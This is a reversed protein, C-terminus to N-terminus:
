FPMRLKISVTHNEFDERAELDYRTVLEIGSVPEMVVGLGGRILLPSPDIGKTVFAPGGAVFSSAISAQDNITDYGLGLNATLSTTASWKHSFEGDVSFILEDVTQGDVNLNYGGPGQETYGDLDVATYDVRASPTFTNREDIRIDHEIGAGIHYNTSDYDATAVSYMSPSFNLTRSGDYNSTGIDAQFSLETLKDLSYSGYLALQYSDIDTSQPAVDSNSDVDSAAYAFAMGLRYGSNSIDTDAGLVVGYTSADYGIIGDADDQNVWSGFPKAWM